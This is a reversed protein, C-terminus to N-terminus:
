HFIQFNSGVVIQNKKFFGIPVELAYKIDKDKSTVPVISNATLKSIEVVVGNANIFAISLNVKTNKMWFSVQQPEDLIFAMFFNKSGQNRGALGVRQESATKAIEVRILEQGILAYGKEFTLAQSVEARMPHSLSLFGILLSIVWEKSTISILDM